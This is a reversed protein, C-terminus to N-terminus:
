TTVEEEHGASFDASMNDGMQQIILLADKHIGKEKADLYALYTEQDSKTRKGGWNDNRNLGEEDDDNAEFRRGSRGTEDIICGSAERVRELTVLIRRIDEIIRDSSPIVGTDPHTLRIYSDAMRKPTSSTFKLPNEDPIHQTLQTHYHHCARIDQNLNCDLPM